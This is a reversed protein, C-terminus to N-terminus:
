TNVKYHKKKSLNDLIIDWLKEYPIIEIEFPQNILEIESSSLRKHYKAAHREVAYRNFGQKPIELLMKIFCNSRFTGDNKLYRTSYKELATIRETADDYKRRVILFCMQAILLPINMARKDKSFTPQDNVFKQISYAKKPGSYAIINTEILLRIYAEYLRWRRQHLEGINLYATSRYAPFFLECAVGFTGRHLHLLIENERLRYWHYKKDPVLDYSQDILTIARTYQRKQINFVILVYTHILIGPLYTFPLGNFYELARHANDHIALHNNENSYRIHRIIYFHNHFYFSPIDGVYSEFRQEIKRCMDSIEDSKVQSSNFHRFVRNREIEMDKEIRYYELYKNFKEVAREEAKTDGAQNCAVYVIREAQFAINLFFYKCARKSVMTAVFHAADRMQINNLVEAVLQLKLCEYYKRGLSQAKPIGDNILAIRDTLERVNAIVDATKLADTTHAKSAVDDFRKIFGQIKLKEDLRNIDISELVPKAASATQFLQYLARNHNM